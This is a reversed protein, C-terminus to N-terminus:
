CLSCTLTGAKLDDPTPFEQNKVHASAAPIPDTIHPDSLVDDVYAPRLSKPSVKYVASVTVGVGNVSVASPPIKRFAYESGGNFRRIAARYVVGLCPSPLFLGKKAAAAQLHRLDRRALPLKASRFFQIGERVNEQWNWFIRPFFNNPQTVRATGPPFNWERAEPDRQVIGIGAPAGVLFTGDPKFQQLRHNSEHCFIRLLAWSEDGCPFATSAERRILDEVDARQPNEGRIHCQVSKLAQGGSAHQFSARVELMGGVILRKWQGLDVDVAEGSTSKATGLRFRYAQRKAGSGQRVPYTGSVLFEWTIIAKTAEQQDCLARAQVRVTPM